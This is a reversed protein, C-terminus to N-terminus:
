RELKELNKLRRRAEAQRKKHEKKDSLDGKKLSATKVHVDNSKGRVRMLVRDSRNYYQGHSIRKARKALSNSKPSESYGGHSDVPHIGAASTPKPM